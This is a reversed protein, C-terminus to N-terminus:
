PNGYLAEARQTFASVVNKSMQQFVPGLSLNMWKNSMEFDVSFTIYCGQEGLCDFNWFGELYRFPGKVLSMEVRKGEILRNQTVVSNRIGAKAFDMQAEIQHASQSLVKAYQCFPLFEHYNDVDNVLDYMRKASYPVHAFHTVEM